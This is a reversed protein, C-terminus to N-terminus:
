IISHTGEPLGQAFKLLIEEKEKSVEYFLDKYSCLRSYLATKQVKELDTNPFFSDAPEDLRSKKYIVDSDPEAM